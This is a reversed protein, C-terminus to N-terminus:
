NTICITRIRAQNRNAWLSIDEKDDIAKGLEQILAIADTNPTQRPTNKPREIQVGNKLRWISIKIFGSSIKKGTDEFLGTKIAAKALHENEETTRVFIENAGLQSEPLNVTLKGYLGDDCNAQIALRDNSYRGCHLTINDNDIKFITGNIYM